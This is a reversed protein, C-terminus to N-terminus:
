DRMRARAKKLWYLREALAFVEPRDGRVYSPTPTAPDLFLDVAPDMDGTYIGLATQYGPNQPEDSALQKLRDLMAGDIDLLSEGGGESVEGQFVIGLSQLHREYEEAVPPYVAVVHRYARNDSGGSLKFIIRGLTGILNPSMIVRTETLPEGMIWNHAEGYDALRQFAALDGQEWRCLMYGELMDNSVTAKAGQDGNVWCSPAPRRHIQGPAYEALDINVPFGGACSLGAWLTGDCDTTSPWGTDDTAADLAASTEFILADVQEARDSPSSKEKHTTCALLTFVYLAIYLHRMM